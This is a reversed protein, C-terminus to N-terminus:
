GGEGRETASGGKWGGAAVEFVSLTVLLCQQGVALSMTEVEGKVELWGTGGSHKDVQGTM